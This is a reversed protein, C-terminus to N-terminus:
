KLSTFSSPYSIDVDHNLNIPNGVYELKQYKKSVEHRPSPLATANINYHDNCAVEGVSVRSQGAFAINKYEQDKKINVMDFVVRDVDNYVSPKIRIYVNCLSSNAFSFLPLMVM